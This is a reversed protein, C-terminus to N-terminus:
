GESEIQKIADRNLMEIEEKYFKLDKETVVCNYTKDRIVAMDYQTVIDRYKLIQALLVDNNSFFVAEKIFIDLVQLIERKDKGYISYVLMTSKVNEMFLHKQKVFKRVVAMKQRYFALKMEKCYENFDIGNENINGSLSKHEFFNLVSITMLETFNLGTKELYPKIKSDLYYPLRFHWPEGKAMLPDYNTKHRQM